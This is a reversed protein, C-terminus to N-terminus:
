GSRPTDAAGSDQPSTQAASAEGRAADHDREPDMTETPSPGTGDPDIHVRKDTLADDKFNRPQDRNAARESDLLRERQQQPESADASRSTDTPRASERFPDSPMTPEEPHVMRHAAIPLGSTPLPLSQRRPRCGTCRRRESSASPGHPYVRSVGARM